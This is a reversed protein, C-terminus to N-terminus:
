FPPGGQFDIDMISSPPNLIVKDGEKLDGSLVESVTDSSTGIKIVVKEVANNKLLYVVTEGDVLRVARNPVTLVNELQNVIINVAATMGPRVQEDPNLIEITVKFTVLGSQVTGVNAVSIVRGQYARNMIADFTLEVDQGKQISNFDVEPIQVDVLLRSLDDIRFAQTGANVLDGVMANVETVTGSFPAVLRALNITANLATIRAEAAAIDAPDPGDKVREWERLADEYQALAVAVKANAIALEKEDPLQTLYNLDQKARELSERANALTSLASAKLPDSDDRSKVREYAEEADNVRNEALTVAARAADIRNQDTTRATNAQPNSWVARDYADKANALTLQAQARALSSERLNELNRQATVLEARALIVSQPLSSDLLRALSEESAVTDGVAVSIESIRGSTQWVLVASQNSHVTGTAGVIAVLEGRSVSTTQLDALSAQKKMNNNVILYAVGGIVVLALLILWYKKSSSKKKM